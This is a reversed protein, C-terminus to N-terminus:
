RAQPFRFPLSGRAVRTLAKIADPRMEKNLFLADRLSKSPQGTECAIRYKAVQTETDNPLHGLAKSCGEWDGIRLRLRVLNRWCDNDLPDLMSARSFAKEAAIPDDRMLARGLEFWSNTHKPDTEIAKQLWTSIQDKKGQIELVKALNYFVSAPARKKEAMQRLLVEAGAWNQTAICLGLKNENIM